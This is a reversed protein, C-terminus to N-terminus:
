IRQVCNNEDVVTINLHEVSNESHRTCPLMKYLENNVAEFICGVFNFAQRGGFGAELGFRGAEM